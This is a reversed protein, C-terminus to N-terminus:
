IFNMKFTKMTDWLSSFELDGLWSLCRIDNGIGAMDSEITFTIRGSCGPEKNM